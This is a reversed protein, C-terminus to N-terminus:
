NLKRWLMMFDNMYYGDGIDIDLVKEIKFGNKFYFNIAKYNQRNVTLRIEIPNKQQVLKKFVKSGIGKKHKQPLIYFKHIFYKKRGKDEISIFGISKKDLKILYFEHKLEFMQKEIADNSYFKDLMYQVQKFAIIVPYYKWWIENALKQIISVDDKGALVLKIM